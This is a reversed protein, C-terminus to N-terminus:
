YPQNKLILNRLTERNFCYNIISVLQVPQLRLVRNLIKRCSCLVKCKSNIIQFQIYILILEFMKLFEQRTIKTFM